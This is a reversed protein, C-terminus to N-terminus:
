ASWLAAWRGARRAPLARRPRPLHQGPAKNGPPVLILRASPCPRHGRSHCGPGAQRGEPRPWSVRGANGRGQPVTGQLGAPGPGVVPWRGTRRALFSRGPRPSAPLLPAVSGPRCGRGSRRLRARPLPAQGGAPLGNPQGKESLRNVNESLRNVPSLRSWSRM